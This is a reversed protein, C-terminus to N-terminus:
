LEDAADSTYLLCIRFCEVFDPLKVGCIIAATFGFEYFLRHLEIDVVESGLILAGHQRVCHQGGHFANNGFAVVTDASQKELHSHFKGDRHIHHRCVAVDVINSEFPELAFAYFFYFPEVAVKSEM